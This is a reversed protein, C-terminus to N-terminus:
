KAPASPTAPAARKQRISDAIQTRAQAMGQDVQTRAMAQQEAPAAAIVTEVAARLADQQTKCGALASDAGQEPTMSAPVAAVKPGLCASFAMAASQIPNQAAPAPPTAPAAPATAQALVLALISAVAM